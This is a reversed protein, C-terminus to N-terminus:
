ARWIATGAITRREWIIMEKATLEKTTTCDCVTVVRNGVKKM